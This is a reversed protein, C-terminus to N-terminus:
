LVFHLQGSTDHRTQHPRLYLSRFLATVHSPRLYQQRLEQFVAVCASTSRSAHPTYLYLHHEWPSLPSPKGYCIATLATDTYRRSTCATPLLVLTRTRTPPMFIVFGVEVTPIVERTTKFTIHNRRERSVFTCRMLSYIIQWELLTM